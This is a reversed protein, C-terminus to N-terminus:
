YRYYTVGDLVMFWDGDVDQQPEQNLTFKKFGIKFKDGKVRAKGTATVTSFGTLSQYTAM